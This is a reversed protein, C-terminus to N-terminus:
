EAEFGDISSPFLTNLNCHLFTCVPPTILISYAYMDGCEYGVADNKSAVSVM